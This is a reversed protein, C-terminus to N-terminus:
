FDKATADVSKIRNSLALFDSPRLASMQFSDPYTKVAKILESPGASPYQAAKEVDYEYLTM